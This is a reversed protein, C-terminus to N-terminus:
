FNAPAIDAEIDAVDTSKKWHDFIRVLQEPNQYPLARLLVGYVISFIATNAGIGVMLTLLVVATVGKNGPCSIALSYLFDQRFTEM